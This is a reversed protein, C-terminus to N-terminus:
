KKQGPGKEGRRKPEPAKACPLIVLAVGLAEAVQHLRQAQVNRAQEVEDVRPQAVGMREALQVQTWGRAKRYVEVQQALTPHDDLTVGHHAALERFALSDPAPLPPLSKARTM